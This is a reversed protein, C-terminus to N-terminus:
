EIYAQYSVSFSAEDTTERLQCDAYNDPADSSSPCGNTICGSKTNLQPASFRAILNEGNQNFIMRKIIKGNKDINMEQTPKVSRGDITFSLGLDIPSLINAEVFYTGVPEIVDIWCSRFIDTTYTTYRRQQKKLTNLSKQIDLDLILEKNNKKKFSLQMPEFAIRNSRGTEKKLSEFYDNKIESAKAIYLTDQGLV